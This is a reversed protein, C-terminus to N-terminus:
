EKILLLKPFIGKHIYIRDFTKNLHLGRVKEKLDTDSIFSGGSILLWVQDIGDDKYNNHSKKHISELLKNIAPKPDYFPPFKPEIKSNPLDEPLIVVTAELGIKQADDLICIADPYEQTENSIRRLTGLKLENFTSIFDDINGLEYIKKM